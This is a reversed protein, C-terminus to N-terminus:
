ITPSETKEVIKPIETKLQQYAEKMSNMLVKTEETSFCFPM